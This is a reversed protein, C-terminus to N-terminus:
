GSCKLLKDTEFSRDPLTVRTNRGGLFEITVFRVGDAATFTVKGGAEPCARSAGCRKYGSVDATLTRGEITDSAKGDVTVCSSSDTTIRTSRFSPRHTLTFSPATGTYTGNWEVTKSTPGFAIKADAVVDLKVVLPNLNRDYVELSLNESAIKLTATGASPGAAYTALLKGNVKTYGLTYTCDTFTFTVVNAARSTSVCDKPTFALRGFEGVSAAGDPTDIQKPDSLALHPIATIASAVDSARRSEDGDDYLAQETQTLGPNGVGTSDQAKGACGVLLVVCPFFLKWVSM